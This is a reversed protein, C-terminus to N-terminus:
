TAAPTMTIRIRIVSRGATSSQAINGIGFSALGGLLAFAVALWKWNRGLGNEIYYMPGGKHVGNAGTDRFKGILRAQAGGGDGMGGGGGLLGGFLGDPTHELNEEVGNHNAGNGGEGHQQGAKLQALGGSINWMLDGSGTAGVICFLVFIVKYISTVVKNDRTSDEM